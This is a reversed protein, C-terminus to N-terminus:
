LMTCWVITWTETVTSKKESANIATLLSGILSNSIQSSSSSWMRAKRSIGSKSAHELTYGIAWYINPAEHSSWHKAIHAQVALVRISVSLGGDENGPRPGQVEHACAGFPKGGDRVIRVLVVEGRM